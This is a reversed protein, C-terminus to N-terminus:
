MEIEALERWNEKKIRDRERGTEEETERIHWQLFDLYIGSVQRQEEPLHIWPVTILIYKYGSQSGLRNCKGNFVVPSLFSSTSATAQHNIRTDKQDLVTM